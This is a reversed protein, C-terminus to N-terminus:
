ARNRGARPTTTPPCASQGGWLPSEILASDARCCNAARRKPQNSEAGLGAAPEAMPPASQWASRSTKIHRDGIFPLKLFLLVCRPTIAGLHLIRKPAPEHRLESLLSRHVDQHHHLLVTIVRGNERMHVGHRRREMAGLARGSVDHRDVALWSGLRDRQGKGGRDLRVPVAALAVGIGNAVEADPGLTAGYTVGGPAVAFAMEDGAVEENRDLLQMVRRALQKLLATLQDAAEHGPQGHGVPRLARAARDAYAKTWNRSHRRWHECRKFGDDLSQAFCLPQRELAVDVSSRRPALMFSASDTISEAEDIQRSM